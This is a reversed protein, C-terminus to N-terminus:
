GNGTGKHKVHFMRDILYALLVSVAFIATWLYWTNSTAGGGPDYGEAHFCYAAIYSAVYLFPICNAALERGNVSFLCILASGLLIM